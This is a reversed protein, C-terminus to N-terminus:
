TGTSTARRDPRQDNRPWRIGLAAARSRLEQNIPRELEEVLLDGAKGAFRRVEESRELELDALARAILQHFRRATRPDDFVALIDVYADLEKYSMADCDVDILLPLLPMADIDCHTWIQLLYDRDRWNLGPWAELGLQAFTAKHSEVLRDVWRSSDLCLLDMHALLYGLSERTGLAVLIEVARQYHRELDGWEEHPPVKEDLLICLVSVPDPYRERLHGISTELPEDQALLCELKEWHSEHEGTPETENLYDVLSSSDELAACRLWRALEGALQADEDAPAKACLETLAELARQVTGPTWGSLQVSDVITKRYINLETM